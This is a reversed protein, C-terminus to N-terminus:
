VSDDERVEGYGFFANAIIAAFGGSLIFALLVYMVMEAIWMM